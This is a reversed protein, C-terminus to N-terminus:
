RLVLVNTPQKGTISLTGGVRGNPTKSYRCEETITLPFSRTGFIHTEGTPLELLVLYKNFSPYPLNGFDKLEINITINFIKGSKTTTSPANADVGNKVIDLLTPSYGNKFSIGVKGNIVLLSAIQKVDIIKASIFGGMRDNTTNM